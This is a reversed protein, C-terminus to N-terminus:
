VPLPGVERAAEEAPGQLAPQVCGETQQRGEPSPSERREPRREERRQDRRGGRREGPNSRMSLAIRGREMDVELVTVKVHQRLKVVESPDKVFRDALESMHVLGDQHVGVDVFAGFRTVNTVIGPLVMGTRLDEM